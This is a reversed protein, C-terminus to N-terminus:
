CSEQPRITIVPVSGRTVSRKKLGGSFSIPSKDTAKSEQEIARMYTTYQDSDLLSVKLDERALPASVVEYHGARAAMQLATQDNSDVINVDVVERQLIQEGSM